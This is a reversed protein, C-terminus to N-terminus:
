GLKVGVHALVGLQAVLDHEVRRAAREEYREVLDCPSGMETPPVAASICYQCEGPCTPGHDGGDDDHQEDRRRDQDAHRAHQHHVLVPVIRKQWMLVRISLKQSLSTRVDHQKSRPQTKHLTYMNRISYIQLWYLAKVTIFIQVFEAVLTWANAYSWLEAGCEQPHGMTHLKILDGGKFGNDKIKIGALM